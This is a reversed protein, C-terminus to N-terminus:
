CKSSDLINFLYLNPTRLESNLLQVSLITYNIETAITVMQDFFLKKNKVEELISKTYFFSLAQLKFSYRWMLKVM